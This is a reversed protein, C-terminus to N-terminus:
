GHVMGRMRRALLNVTVVIALVSALLIMAIAAAFPYNNAQIAQQYIYFPMFMQQGGGVLTQTVFASVSSAYVLLCGALVGPASLPLIVRLFTRWSGAGLSLSAQRLNPDIGALVTIIPLVMLPLEIQALAVVVATPTYLLKAPMEFLGIAVLLENVIGQRGLIVLWAFTRVVASTLLPLVILLMLVGQWRPASVSYLYALPYGILLTLLTVKLGLWLTAGLVGLNFRDALFKTYQALSAEELSVDTHLSVYGLLALPGLVFAGFFLALPLVLQWQRLPSRRLVVAEGQVPAPTM